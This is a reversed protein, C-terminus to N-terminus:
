KLYKSIFYSSVMYVTMGICVQLPYLLVANEPILMALMTIAGAPPMFMKRNYVILLMLAAACVAASTLPLGLTMTLALRCVSGILACSTLLIVISVPKFPFRGGKKESLETFAVLLPPAAMFRWGSRLAILMFVAVLATRALFRFYAYKGPKARPAFSESPIIDAKVYIEHFIIISLTMGAASIVYTFSKSEILVPLVVASILPALGTGSFMYILQAAAFAAILKIYLSGPLFISILLGLLACGSILLMMRQSNVAWSRKPACIYGVALAAIEPFIIERDHMAESVATMLAILFLVTVVRIVTCATSKNGSVETDM